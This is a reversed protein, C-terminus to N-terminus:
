LVSGTPSGKWGACGRNLLQCDIRLDLVEGRTVSFTDCFGSVRYLEMDM